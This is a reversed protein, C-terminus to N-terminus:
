RMLVHKSGGSSLPGFKEDIKMRNNELKFYSFIQPSIMRSGLRSSIMVFKAACFHLLHITYM